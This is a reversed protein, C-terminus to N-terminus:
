GMRGVTSSLVGVTACQESDNHFKYLSCIAQENIHLKRDFSINYLYRLLAINAGM